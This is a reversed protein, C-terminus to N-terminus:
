SCDLPVEGKDKDGPHEFAEWDFNEAPLGNRRLWVSRDGLKGDNNKCCTLVVREEGVDDSASQLVWVCRPISGLVYSGSLLNLLSRGIARENPQPKRTHAVIGIAPGNTGPPFVSRIDNFTELYDKQRDDRVAANWPDILV